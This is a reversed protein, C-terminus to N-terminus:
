EGSVRLLESPPTGYHSWAVSGRWFRKHKSANGVPIRAVVRIWVQIQLTPSSLHLHAFEM